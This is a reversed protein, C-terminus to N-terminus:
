HVELPHGETAGEFKKILSLCKYGNEREQEGCDERLILECQSQGVVLSSSAANAAFAQFLGFKPNYYYVRHRSERRFQELQVAFGINPDANPHAARVREIAETFTLALKWMLYACAMAPARSQGRVCHILVTGGQAEATEIFELALYIFFLIDVAPSDPLAISSYTFTDPHLAPCKHQGALNLIHTVGSRQLCEKDKTAEYSSIYLTDTLKSPPKTVARASQTRATLTPLSLTPPRRSKKTATSM